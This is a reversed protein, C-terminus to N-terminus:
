MWRAYVERNVGLRSEMYEACRRLGEDLSTESSWSLVRRAKTVDPTEHRRTDAPSNIHIIKSRSGTLEIVKKALANITIEHSSGINVPSLTKDSSEMMRVLADVTDGVWCFSRTQGGSGYVVLDKDQLASAIYKPIILGSEPNMEPGYTNFIRAVKTNIGFENRYSECLGEAARKGIGAAYKPFSAPINGTATENYSNANSIGYVDSSSAFIYDARNYKAVDLTNLCGIIDTKLSEVPYKGAYTTDTRAALNFVVDCHINFPNIVNHRIYQFKNNESVDCPFAVEDRARIDLCVVEFGKELLAACLHSGILGGGGAVLAVSSKRKM